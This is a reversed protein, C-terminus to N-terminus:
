PVAAAGKSGAANLPSARSMPNMGIHMRSATVITPMGSMGTAAISSIATRRKPMVTEARHSPSLIGSRPCFLVGSLATARPLATKTTTPRM